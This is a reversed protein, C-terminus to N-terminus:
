YGCMQKRQSDIETKYILENTDNKLNQVYTIDCSIQIERTQSIKSLIIIELDIWTSAFPMIENKKLPQTINYIHVVDEKDM